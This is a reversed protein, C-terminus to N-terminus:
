HLIEFDLVPPNLEINPAPKNLDNVDIIDLTVNDGITLREEEDEDEDEDEDEEDSKEIQAKELAEIDKPSNVISTTGKTDVTIDNNSFTLKSPATFESTLKYDEPANVKSGVVNVSASAEEEM